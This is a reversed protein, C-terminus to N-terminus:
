HAVLLQLSLRRRDGGEACESDDGITSAALARLTELCREAAPVLLQPQEFLQEVRRRAVAARADGRDATRRADALATQRPLELLVDVAHDLRDVPM